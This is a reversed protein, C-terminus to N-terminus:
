AISGAVIARAFAACDFSEKCCSKPVVAQQLGIVVALPEKDLITIQKRAIFITALDQLRFDRIFDLLLCVVLNSCRALEYLINKRLQQEFVRSEVFQHHMRKGVKKTLHQELM